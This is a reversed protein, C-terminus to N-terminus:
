TIYKEVESAWLDYGHDSLHVGDDLFCRSLGLPSRAFVWCGDMFVCEKSLALDFLLKNLRPVADEALWPLRLPFLGTVVLKATPFKEQLTDITKEYAPLFSYDDMSVNNTGIMVFIWDPPEALTLGQCRRSLEQVTEGARGLNIMKHRPFRAQWDFFEILSDGLFVINQRGM